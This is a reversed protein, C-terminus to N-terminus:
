ASNKLKIKKKDTNLLTLIYYNSHSYKNNFLPQANSLEGSKKCLSQLEIKVRNAMLAKFHQKFGKRHSILSAKNVLM